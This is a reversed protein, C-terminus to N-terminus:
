SKEYIIEIRENTEMDIWAVNINEETEDNITVNGRVSFSGNDRHDWLWTDIEEKNQIKM